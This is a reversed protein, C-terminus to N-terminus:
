VNLQEKLIRDFDPFEKKLFIPKGLSNVFCHRTKGTLIIDGTKCNTMVYGITLKVGKFDEVCVFTSLEVDL